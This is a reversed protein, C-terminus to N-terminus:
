AAPESTAGVLQGESREVVVPMRVDISEREYSSTDLAAMGERDLKQWRLRFGLLAAWTGRIVAVYLLQRYVVQQFPVAWVPTVREGDIALSYAAALGTLLNLLLWVGISAARADGDFVLQYVVLVDVAPALLPILYGMVFQYPIARRGLRGANGREVV